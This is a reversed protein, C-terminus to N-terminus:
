VVTHPTHTHSLIHTHTNPRQSHKFAGLGNFLQLCGHQNQGTIRTNWNKAESNGVTMSMHQQTTPHKIRSAEAHAHGLRRGSSLNFGNRLRRRNFLLLYKIGATCWDITCTAELRSAADVNNFGINNDGVSCINAETRFDQTMVLHQQQKWGKFMLMHRDCLKSCVCVSVILCVCM